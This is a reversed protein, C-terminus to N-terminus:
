GFCVISCTNGGLPLSTEDFDETAFTTGTIFFVNGFGDGYYSYTPTGFFKIVVTGQPSSLAPCDTCLYQTATYNVPTSSTSPTPTITPTVTPTPTPTKSPTFTPTPTRTPTPTPSAANSKGWFDTPIQIQEGPGKGALTRVNSDNLSIQATPSLGLEVAISQGTTSGGLSIPGSGNLAM